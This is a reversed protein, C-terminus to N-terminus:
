EGVAACALDVLRQSLYYDNGRMAELLPRVSPILNIRKAAVL